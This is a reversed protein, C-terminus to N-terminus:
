KQSSSEHLELNKSYKEKIKEFKSISEEIDIYDKPNKLMIELKHPTILMQQFNIIIQNIENLNNNLLLIELKKDLYDLITSQIKGLVTQKESM